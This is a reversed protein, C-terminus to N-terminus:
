TPFGLHSGCGRTLAGAAVFGIQSLRVGDVFFCQKRIYKPGQEVFFLPVGCCLFVTSVTHAVIRPIEKGTVFERVHLPLSESSTLAGHLSTGTSM